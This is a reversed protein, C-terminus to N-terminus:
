DTIRTDNAAQRAVDEFEDRLIAEIEGRMAAPDTHGRYLWTRLAERVVQLIATAVRSARDCAIPITRPPIVRLM